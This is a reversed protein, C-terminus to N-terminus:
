IEVHIYSDVARPNSRLNYQGFSGIVSEQIYQHDYSIHYDPLLLFAFKGELFHSLLRGLFPYPLSPEFDPPYISPISQLLDLETSETTEYAAKFTRQLISVM